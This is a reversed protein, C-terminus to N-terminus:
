VGNRACSSDPKLLLSLISLEPSLGVWGNGELIPFVHWGSLFSSGELELALTNTAPSRAIEVFLGGDSEISGQDALWREVTSVEPVLGRSIM